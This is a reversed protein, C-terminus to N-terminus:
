TRNNKFVALSEIHATQPYFDYFRLESLEYGGARLLRSDRALTAPDCSVYAFLPPGEAAIWRALAPSLGQRPPDAVMFGFSGGPKGARGGSRTKLRVWEDDRLAFFERGEGRLNERALALATQNEEVLDIRPFRDGLLAAFVGVGCYLDAMPADAEGALARLDAALVELMAANSQFFVGADLVLERDLVRTRGRSVGGESLFLGQRAYVTFRDKWPPPSLSGEKLAKRIGPDAVPCDNLPIIGGNKRARLGAAAEGSPAARREPADRSTIRHFQMRNRYEWPASPFVRPEPPTTGGLRTFAEKLVAAKAALQAEYRIHQLSCGGCSGYRPCLAEVRDPSPRLIELTEARAWGRHEETIRAAIRDGPATGEVFVAQGERRALGAGGAAIGEIELPGIEGRTM